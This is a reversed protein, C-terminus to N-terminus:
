NFVIWFLTGVYLPDLPLDHIIITYNSKKYKIVVVIGHSKYLFYWFSFAFACSACYGDLINCFGHNTDGTSHFNRQM